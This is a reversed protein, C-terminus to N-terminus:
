ARATVRVLMREYGKVFASFVRKPEEVVEIRGFRKLIEEWMIRLQLEALREGCRAATEGEVLGFVLPLIYGTQTEQAM